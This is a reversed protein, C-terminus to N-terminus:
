KAPPPIQKQVPADYIKLQEPTLIKKIEERKKEDRQRNLAKLKEMDGNAEKRDADEQNISVLIIARIKTQQDTTLTLKETIRKLQRDAKEDTTLPKKPPAAENTGTSTKTQAIVAGSVFLLILGLTLRLFTQKM